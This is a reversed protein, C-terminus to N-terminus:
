VDANTIFVGNKIGNAWEDSAVLERVLRSIVDVKIKDSLRDGATNYVSHAVTVRDEGYNRGNAPAKKQQVVVKADKLTHGPTSWTRRDGFNTIGKLVTTIVAM